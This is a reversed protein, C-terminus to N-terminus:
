LGEARHLVTAIDYGDNQWTAINSAAILQDYTDKGNSYVDKIAEQLKCFDVVVDLINGGDDRVLKQRPVINKQQLKQKILIALLISKLEDITSQLQLTFFNKEEQLWQDSKILLDADEKIADLLHKDTMTNVEHTPM